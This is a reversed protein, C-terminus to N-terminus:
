RRSPRSWNPWSRRPLTSANLAYPRSCTRSSPISPATLTIPRVHLAVRILGERRVHARLTEVLASKGIGAEGSILVVQGQGAKSQEWRRLMLGVEEGRGVLPKVDEPVPTTAEPLTELPGVVRWVGMPATFGKLAQSGLADLVFARQVLQATVASIVVSNPAALAELRAAINPTEGLALHEHRGGGGMAGVVVPGTHIGLRVALAVGYEAQLRSNLPGMAEVIGLGTHVARQADDEHARPYGCYVLLGDGLYQAIHGEFRQIIEVATEQYARVVQRLDEPDLQQSLSTSDVLDCFLVTLQRREAELTGRAPAAPPTAASEAAAPLRADATEGLPSDASARGMWVLGQGNEDMACRTFVLEARVEALRAEDFGFVQRLTRYSIRGEHQLLARVLWLVGAEGYFRAVGEFARQATSLPNGTWRLGRGADDVVHADAYLLADKLDAVYADDLGFQRKLAGYTVRGRRRLLDLAQDLLEEFTM